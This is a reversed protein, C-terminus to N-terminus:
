QPEPALIIMMMMVWTLLASNGIPQAETPKLRFLRFSERKPKQLGFVCQNQLSGSIITAKKELVLGM